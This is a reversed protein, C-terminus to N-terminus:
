WNLGLKSLENQLVKLNWIILSNDLGHLALQSGDPSFRLRCSLIPLISQQLSARTEGSPLAILTTQDVMQAALLQEDYSFAISAAKEEVDRPLAPGKTWTETNWLINDSKGTTGLWRGSPSVIVAGLRGGELEASQKGSPLSWVVPMRDRYATMVWKKNPSIIIDYISPAQEIKFLTKDTSFDWVVGKGEKESTLGFYTSADYPATGFAFTAWEAQPEASTLTFHKDVYSFQHGTMGTRRALVALTHNDALFRLSTQTPIPNPITSLLLGEKADFIQVSNTSAKALLRSDPSFDVSSFFQIQEKVSTPAFATCVRRLGMLELIVANTSETSGIQQDDASFSISSQIMYGTLEVLQTKTRLDWIRTSHDWSHSVIMDGRHNFAMKMVTQRHGQLSGVRQWDKTQFIQISYDSCGVALWQM